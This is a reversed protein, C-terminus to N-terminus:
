NRVASTARTTFHIRHVRYQVCGPKRTKAIKSNSNCSIYLSKSCIMWRKSRLFYVLLDQFWAIILSVLVNSCHLFISWPFLFFTQATVLDRMMLFCRSHELLALFNSWAIM